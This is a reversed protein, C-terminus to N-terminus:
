RKILGGLVWSWHRILYLICGIGWAALVGAILILIYWTRPAKSEIPRIVDDTIDRYTKDGLILPKRIDAEKHM